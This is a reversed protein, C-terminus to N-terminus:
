GSVRTGISRIANALVSESPGTELVPSPMLAACRATSSTFLISVPYLLVQRPPVSVRLFVCSLRLLSGEVRFAEREESLIVVLFFATRKSPRM